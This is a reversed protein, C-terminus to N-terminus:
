ETLINQPGSYGVSGGVIRNMLRTLTGHTSWFV